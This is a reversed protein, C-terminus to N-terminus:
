VRDNSINPIFNGGYNIADGGDSNVVQNQDVNNDFGITVIVDKINTESKVPNGYQDRLRINISHVATADGVRSETFTGVYVSAETVGINTTNLTDSPVDAVVQINGESSNGFPDAITLHYPKAQRFDHQFSPTSNTYTHTGAPCGGGSDCNDVTFTYITGTPVVPSPDSLAFTKSASAAFPKFNSTLNPPTIDTILGEMNIWGLNESWAFGHFIGTSKTFYVDTGSTPHFSIWGANECWAFGVMPMNDATGTLKAGDSGLGNFTCWGANQTWFTGAFNLTGANISVENPGPVGTEYDFMLTGANEGVATGVIPAATSLTSTTASSISMGTGFAICILTLHLSIRKM